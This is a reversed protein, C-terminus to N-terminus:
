VELPKGEAANRLNKMAKKQKKALKAIEKRISDCLMGRFQQIEESNFESFSNCGKPNYRAVDMQFLSQPQDSILPINSSINPM